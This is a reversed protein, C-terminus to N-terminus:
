EARHEEQTLSQTHTVKLRMEGLANSQESSRRHLNEEQERADKLQEEARRLVERLPELERVRRRVQEVERECEARLGRSERESAELRAQYEESEQRTKQVQPPPPPFSPTITPTILM